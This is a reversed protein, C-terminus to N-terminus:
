GHSSNLRTSKRDVLKGELRAAHDRAVAERTTQGRARAEEAVTVYDAHASATQGARERCLALHFRVGLGHELRDSEEFRKCAEQTHGQTMLRKGEIFLADADGAKAEGHVLSAALIANAALRRATRRSAVHPGPSAVLTLHKEPLRIMTAEM